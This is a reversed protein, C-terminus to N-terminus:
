SCLIKSDDNNIYVDVETDQLIVNANDSSLSVKFVETAPEVCEDNLVPIHMCQVTGSGMSFTVDKNISQYDEDALCYHVSMISMCM